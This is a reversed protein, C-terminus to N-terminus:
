KREERCEIVLLTNSWKINDRLDNDIQENKFGKKEKHM